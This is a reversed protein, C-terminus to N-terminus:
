YKVLKLSIFIKVKLFEWGLIRKRHPRISTVSDISRFIFWFVGSFMVLFLGLTKKNVKM